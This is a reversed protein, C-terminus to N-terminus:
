DKKVGKLADREREVGALNAKLLEINQTLSKYQGEVMTLKGQTTNLSEETHTKSDNVSQLQKELSTVNNHLSVLISNHSEAKVKLTAVETEKVQKASTLREVSERLKNIESTLGQAQGELKTITSEGNNAKETKTALQNTLESNQKVLEDRAKIVDSHQIKIQDVLASNSEVKLNAKALETRLTESTNSAVDHKDQLKTIQARLEKELAKHTSEQKDLADNHKQEMLTAESKLTSVTKNLSDVLDSQKFYKDDLDSLDEIATNRQNLADKAQDKYRREAEAGFRTVENMLTNIFTDSLGVQNYLSDMNAQKQDKWMAYYKHITSSSKIEKLYGQVIRVSMKENAAFLEDCVSFVQQKIAESKESLQKDINGVSM